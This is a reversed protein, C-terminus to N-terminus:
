LSVLLSRKGQVAAKTLRLVELNIKIPQSTVQFIAESQGNRVEDKTKTRLFFIQIDGVRLRGSCTGLTTVGDVDVTSDSTPADSLFDLPNELITVEEEESGGYTHSTKMHQQYVEEGKLFEKVMIRVVNYVRNRGQGRQSGLHTVKATLVMDAESAAQKVFGPWCSQVPWAVLLLLLILAMRPVIQLASMTLDSTM